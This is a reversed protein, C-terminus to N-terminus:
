LDFPSLKVFLLTCIITHHFKSVEILIECGHNLSVLEGGIKQKHDKIESSSLILHDRWFKARKITGMKLRMSMRPHNQNILVKPCSLGQIERM